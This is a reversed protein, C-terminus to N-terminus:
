GDSPEKSPDAPLTPETLQINSVLQNGLIQFIPVLILNYKKCITEIEAKCKSQRAELIDNM